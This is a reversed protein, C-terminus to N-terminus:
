YGKKTNSIIGRGTLIDYIDESVLRNGKLALHCRDIFYSDLDEKGKFLLSLDVVIIGKNSFENFIEAYKKYDKMEKYSLVESGFRLFPIIFVPTINNKKALNAMERLNNCYDEGSVRKKDFWRCSALRFLVQQYLQYFKSHSLFADLRKITKNCMKQEKDIFLIANDADNIGFWIILLDPDYNLLDRKLFRLGQFSTYGGTGANIVELNNMKNSHFLEELMYPYTENFKINYPAWGQTISDGMCIIRFTDKPKVLPHHRGRFYEHKYNSWFLYPDKLEIPVSKDPVFYFSAFKFYQNTQNVHFKIIRLAVEFTGFFLIVSLIAVTLKHRIGKVKM